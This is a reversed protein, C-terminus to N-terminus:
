LVDVLPGKYFSTITKKKRKPIPADEPTTAGAVNNASADYAKSMQYLIIRPHGGHVVKKLAPHFQLDWGKRFGLGEAEGVSFRM